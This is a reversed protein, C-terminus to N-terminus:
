QNQKKSHNRLQPHSVRRAKRSQNSSGTERLSVNYFLGGLIATKMQSRSKEPSFFTFGLEGALGLHEKIKFFSTQKQKEVFDRAKLCLEELKESDIPHSM